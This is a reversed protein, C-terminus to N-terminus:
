NLSFGGQVSSNKTSEVATEYIQTNNGTISVYPLKIQLACIKCADEFHTKNKIPPSLEHSGATYHVNGAGIKLM